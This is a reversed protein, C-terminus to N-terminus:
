KLLWITWLEVIRLELDILTLFTVGGLTVYSQGVIKMWYFIKLNSIEIFLRLTGQTYISLQWRSKECINRLLRNTLSGEGIYFNGYSDM